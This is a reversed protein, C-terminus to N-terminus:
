SLNPERKAPTGEERSACVFAVTVSETNKGLRIETKVESCEGLGNEGCADGVSCEPDLTAVHVVLDEGSFVPTARTTFPCLSRQQLMPSDNKPLCRGASRRQRGTQESTPMALCVASICLLTVAVVCMQKVFEM